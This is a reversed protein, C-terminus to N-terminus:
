QPLDPARTGINGPPHRVACSSPRMPRQRPRSDRAAVITHNLTITV